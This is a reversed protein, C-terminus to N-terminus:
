SGSYSDKKTIKTMDKDFVVFTASDNVDAVELEVCFRIVGYRQSFFMQQVLPFHRIQGVEQQM